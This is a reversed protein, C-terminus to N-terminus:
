FDITKVKETAGYKLMNEELQTETIVRSVRFSSDSILFKTYYHGSLMRSLELLTKEGSVMIERVQLGRKLRDISYGMSYLREYKSEGDPLVSSVLLFVTLTIYSYNGGFFMLIIASMALIGSFIISIIRIVSYGKKAGLRMSLISLAIRGGDLPFVPLLNILGNFFSAFIIPETFAYVSPFLWWSAAGLLCVFFNSFPGAIAILMEDVPKVCVFEGSVSAGYPMLRFKNLKYGRREAVVSHAFEHYLVATLYSMITIFYGFFLFVACMIILLPSIYIKRNNKVTNREAMHKNYM